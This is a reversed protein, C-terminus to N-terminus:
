DLIFPTRLLLPSKPLYYRSVHLLHSDGHWGSLGPGCRQRMDESSLLSTFVKIEFKGAEQATLFYIEIKKVWDTTKSYNYILRYLAIYVLIISYPIDHSDKLPFLFMIQPTVPYLFIFLSSVEKLGDCHGKLHANVKSYQHLFLCKFLNLLRHLVM